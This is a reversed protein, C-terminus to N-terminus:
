LRKIIVCSVDDEPPGFRLLDDMIAQYIEGASHDKFERLRNELQSPFYDEEGNNHEALGDTFLILIDGHAMLSIENLQYGPKPPLPSHVTGRDIDKLSPMLGIPPFTVLSKAAIDVIRDFERSFVVPIPSAASIFRFTGSDSIEGYLLSLYRGVASSRFFRNNLNEFLKTTIRGFADLEYMAGILFSQHLMLAVLGDTIRHGSVDAIAIGAKTKCEALSAEIESDQVAQARRIRADLDYRRNFDMYIIHDGGIVGQLPVTGGYIEIGELIPIDGPSPVLHAAIDQFHQLESSRERETEKKEQLDDRSGNM